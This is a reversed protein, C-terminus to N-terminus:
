LVSNPIYPNVLKITILLFITAIISSVLGYIVGEFLFPLRIFTNSAGVLRMVEIESKHIYITIRITNFIILVSVAAFVLVM